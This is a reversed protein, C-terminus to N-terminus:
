ASVTWVLISGLGILVGFVVTSGDKGWTSRRWSSAGSTSSTKTPTPTTLTSSPSPSSLPTSSSSLMSSLSSPPPPFSISTASPGVFCFKQALQEGTLLEQPCNDTLCSTINQKFGDRDCRWFLGFIGDAVWSSPLSCSFLLLLLRERFHIFPICKMTCLDRRITSM